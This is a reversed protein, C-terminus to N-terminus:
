LGSKRLVRVDGIRMTLKIRDLYELLPISFKRTLGTLNKFRPADIEGETKIFDIVQKKLREMTPTDYYLSESVKLLAGDRVLLAMVEGVVKEPYDSFHDMTERLTATALGKERYWATLAARVEQEDAQLAVSHSFLRVTSEDQVIQEQRILEAMCFQFVRGDLGRGISSRLEEKSLGLQLPQRLHYEKLVVLLEDELRDIVSRALYRQAGSDVVAIKRTSLPPTLAKKLQNGFLGLRIALEDQTLGVPGSLELFYLIKEEIEGQQIIHLQQRNRNRDSDSLRKRKRPSLNDLIAGGGITMIPSYSRVVYRDGPWVSVPEEFLLQVLAEHGSQLLDRDLLSIRAMYEGTGLHVRVRTRHKLPKENSSLYFFDCDLM